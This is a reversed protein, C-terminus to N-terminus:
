IGATKSLDRSPDVFHWVGRRRENSLYKNLGFNIYAKQFKIILLVLISNVVYNM